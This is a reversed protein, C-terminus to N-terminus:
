KSRAEILKSFQTENIKITGIAKDANIINDQRFREIEAKINIQDGKSLNLGTIKNPDKMFEAWQAESAFTNDSLSDASMLQRILKSELDKREQGKAGQLANSIRSSLQDGTLISDGALADRIRKNLNSQYDVPRVYGSLQNTQRDSVFDLFHNEKPVFQLSWNDTDGSLTRLGLKGSSGKIITENVIQAAEAAGVGKSKLYATLQGASAALSSGKMGELGPLEKEITSPDGSNVMDPLDSRLWKGIRVMTKNVPGPVFVAPLIPHPSPVLGGLYKSDMETAWAMSTSYQNMFVQNDTLPTTLSTGFAGKLRANRQEKPMANLLQTIDGSNVAQTVAAGNVTKLSDITLAIGFQSNVMRQFQALTGKDVGAVNPMSEETAIQDRYDAAALPIDQGSMNAFVSVARGRSMGRSEMGRAMRFSAYPASQIASNLKAPDALLDLYASPNLRLAATAGRSIGALGSTWGAGQGTALAIGPNNRVIGMGVNAMHQQYAQAAQTETGGGFRYMASVNEQATMNEKILESGRYQGIAYDYGTGLGMSRGSAMLSNLMKALEDPPMQTNYQAGGVFRGVNTMTKASIGMAKTEVALLKAAEANIKLTSTLERITSMFERNSADMVGAGRVGGLAAAQKLTQYSMTTNAAEALDAKEKNTLTYGMQSDFMEIQRRLNRAANVAMPGNLRIGAGDTRRDGAAVADNRFFSMRANISRQIDGEGEMFGAGFRGRISSPILNASFQNVTERLRLALEDQATQQNLRRSEGVFANYGTWGLGGSMQNLWRGLGADAVLGGFSQMLPGGGPAYMMNSRGIGAVQPAVGPMSVLSGYLMQRTATQQMMQQVNFMQSWRQTEQQLQLTRQQNALAAAAQSQQMNYGIAGYGSALQMSQLQNMQENLTEVRFDRSFPDAM